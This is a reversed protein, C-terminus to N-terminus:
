KPCYVPNTGGWEPPIPLTSKKNCIVKLGGRVDVKKKPVYKKKGATKKTKKKM